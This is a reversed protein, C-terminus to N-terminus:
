ESFYYAIIQLEDNCPGIFVTIAGSGQTDDVQVRGAYMATYTGEGLIVYDSATNKICIYSGEDSSSNNYFQGNIAFLGIYDCGNGAPNSLCWSFEGLGNIENIVNGLGDYIVFDGNGDILYIGTQIIRARKDKIRKRIDDNGINYISWSVSYNVEVIATKGVPITFSPNTIRPTGAAWYGLDTGTQIIKDSANEGDELYNHTDVLIEFDDGMSGLILDGNANAFVRTTQDVGFNNDNNTFNLGDIRVNETPGAVHVEQQPDITNIGVQGSAELFPILFIFISILYRM